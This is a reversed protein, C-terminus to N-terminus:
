VCAGFVRNRGEQKSRYLCRDAVQILQEPNVTRDSQLTVVGFSATVQNPFGPPFRLSEVAQRLKEAASTAQEFRVDPAVIAFEEGGFRCVCDDRRSHGKLAKAVRSLVEDGVAHGFGDNVSKFRDIDCLMLTLPCATVARDEIAEALSMDFKRRNGLGTLSDTYIEVALARTEQRLRMVELENQALDNTAQMSMAVLQQQAKALLQSFDRDFSVDLSLMGALEGVLPEIDRVVQDADAEAGGLRAVACRYNALHPADSCLIFNTLSEAASLVGALSDASHVDHHDRVGAGIAPPFRWNEILQASTASHDSDLSDQELKEIPEGTERCREILEHYATGFQERRALIGMDQTLGALFATEADVGRAVKALRRAATSNIINREWCWQFVPDNSRPFVNTLCFGLTIMKATRLGMLVLAHRLATVPQSCGLFASNAFTLVKVAIAPELEIARVLDAIAVDPEQLLALIRAAAQPLSPLTAHKRDVESVAM